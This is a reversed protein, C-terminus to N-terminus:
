KELRLTFKLGDVGAVQYSQGDNKFLNKLFDHTAEEKLSATKAHAGMRLVLIPLEGLQTSLYIVRDGKEWEQKSKSWRERQVPIALAFKLEGADLSESPNYFMNIGKYSPIKGGQNLEYLPLKQDKLPGDVFFQSCFRQFEEKSWQEANDIDPAPTDIKAKRSSNGFYSFLQSLGYLAGLAVSVIATSKWPNARAQKCLQTTVETVTNWNLKAPIRM